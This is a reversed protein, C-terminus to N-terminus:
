ITRVHKDNNLKWKCKFIKGNKMVIEDVIHLDLGDCNM